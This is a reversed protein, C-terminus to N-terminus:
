FSHSVGVVTKSDKYNVATASVTTVAKNKESGTLVYATTRKSLAYRAGFYTGKVDADTTTGTTRKLNGTSASLTIAGVPVFIAYQHAKVDDDLLSTSRPGKLRGGVYSIKAMGFDYSAGINTGTIGRSTTNPTATTATPTGVVGTTAGPNTIAAAGFANVPYQGVAAQTQQTAKTYAVAAYIPGQAYQGMLSIFKANAKSTGNFGNTGNMEFTERGAGAGYQAKVSFGSMSNSMYTIANARTGNAHLSPASSGTMVNTGNQFNGGQYESPSLGNFAVLDYSNTYQYGIRVTGLAKSSLGLFSQRNNGTTYAYSAADVQHAGAGVRKNYGDASTPSIGQELHFSASLGGGLDETGRFGFRSGANSGDMVGSTKLSVTGNLNTTKHSGYGIDVVGFM